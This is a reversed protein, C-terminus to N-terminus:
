VMIDLDDFTDVIGRLYLMCSAGLNWTINEQNFTSAIEKLLELKKM